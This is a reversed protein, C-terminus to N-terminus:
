CIPQTLAEVRHFTSGKYGKEGTALAVFNNVTLPVVDEFQGIVIRGVEHGAVTIDFLVMYQIKDDNFKVNPRIARDMVQQLIGSHEERTAAAIIMDDRQEQNDLTEKLMTRQVCIRLAPQAHRAVTEVKRILDLQVCAERGLLPTDSADTVYFEAMKKDQPDAYPIEM